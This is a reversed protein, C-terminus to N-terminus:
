DKYRLAKMLKANLRVLANDEAKRIHPRAEVRGGNVKAHGFELLHTLRYDPKRSYVVRSLRWKGRISNDKKQAWSEAYDGTPGIPSTKQLEKVTEKATELVAQEVSEVTNERYIELNKLVEVALKDINITAM